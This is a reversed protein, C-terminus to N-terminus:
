MLAYNFYFPSFINKENISIQGITSIKKTFNIFLLFPFVIIGNSRQM